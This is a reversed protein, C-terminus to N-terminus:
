RDNPCWCILTPEGTRECIDRNKNCNGQCRANACDLESTDDQLPRYDCEDEQEFIKSLHPLEVEITRLRDERRRFLLLRHEEGAENPFLMVQDNPLHFAQLWIREARVQAPTGLPVRAIAEDFIRGAVPQLAAEKALDSELVESAPEPRSGLIGQMVRLSDGQLLDALTPTRQAYRSALSVDLLLDLVINV